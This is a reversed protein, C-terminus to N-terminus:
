RHLLAAAAYSPSSLALSKATSAAVQMSSQQQRRWNGGQSQRSHTAKSHTLRRVWWLLLQLAHYVVIVRVNM